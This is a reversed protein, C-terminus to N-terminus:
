RPSTEESRWATWCTIPGGDTSVELEGRCFEPKVAKLLLKIVQEPVLFVYRQSSNIIWVFPTNIWAPGENGM